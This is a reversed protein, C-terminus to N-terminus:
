EGSDQSIKLEAVGCTWMSKTVFDQGITFNVLVVHLIIMAPMKDLMHHAHM